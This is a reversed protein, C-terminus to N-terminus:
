SIEQVNQILHSLKEVPLSASSRIIYAYAGDNWIYTCGSTGMDRCYVKYAGYYIITTEGSEGDLFYNVGDLTKQEFVLYEKDENRWEFYNSLPGEEERKLTYGEPVYGLTYRVALGENEPM